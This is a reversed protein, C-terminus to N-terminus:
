KEYQPQRPVRRPRLADFEVAGSESDIIQFTPEGSQEGTGMGCRIYYHVGPELILTIEGTEGCDAWIRAAGGAPVEVSQKWNNFARCLPQDFLYIDYKGFFGPGSPRYFHLMAVGKAKLASDINQAGTGAYLLRADIQYRNTRRTNPGQSVIQVVNSGAKRAEALVLNYADEQASRGNKNKGTAQVKGIYVINKITSDNESLITINASDSLASYAQTAIVPVVRPSCACLLGGGVLGFLRSMFVYRHHSM